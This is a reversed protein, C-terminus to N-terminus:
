GNGMDKEYATKYNRYKTQRDPEQDFDENMTDLKTAEMDMVSKNNVMLESVAKMLENQFLSDGMNFNAFEKVYYALQDESQKQERILQTAM